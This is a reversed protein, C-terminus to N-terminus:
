APRAAHATAILDGLIQHWVLRGSNRLCSGASLRIVFPDMSQVSLTAVLDTYFYGKLIHAYGGQRSLVTFPPGRSASLRPSPRRQSRSKCSFASRKRKGM